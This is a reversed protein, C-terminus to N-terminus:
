WTIAEIEEASAAANIQNRLLRSKTHCANIHAGMAMGVGIMDSAGLTMTSNDAMTWDISFPQGAVMALSALQAAGQIRQQSIQDCDFTGGGWAFVGFEEQERAAKIREWAQAKREDLTRPDEWQKTTYNFTHHLSPKNGIQVPTYNEIYFLGDSYHGEIWDENESIQLNANGVHTSILRLIQGSEKDFVTIKM